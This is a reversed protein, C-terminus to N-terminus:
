KNESFCKFSCWYLYKGNVYERVVHAEIKKACGQCVMNDNSIIKNSNSNHEGFLDCFSSGM